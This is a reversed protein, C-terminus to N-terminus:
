IKEGHNPANIIKLYHMIYQALLEVSDTQSAIMFDYFPQKIDSQMGIRIKARSIASLYIFPYFDMITFDIMYDVDLESLREIVIESPMRFWNLDKQEIILRNVAPDALPQKDNDPVFIIEYVNKQDSRLSRTIRKVLDIDEKRYATFLLAFSRAETYGLLHKIRTIKASSRRLVYYAYKEKIKEIIKM